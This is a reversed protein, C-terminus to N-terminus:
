SQSSEFSNHRDCSTNKYKTATTQEIANEMEQQKYLVRNGIKYSKLLGLKTWEHLTPLSIKLLECVDARSLYSPKGVQDQRTPIKDIRSQVADSIKDILEDLHIGNLIIQKM